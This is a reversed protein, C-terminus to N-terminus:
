SEDRFSYREPLQVVATRTILRTRKRGRRTLIYHQCSLTMMTHSREDNREEGSVVGLENGRTLPSAPLRGNGEADYPMMRDSRGPSARRNDPLSEHTSWTNAAVRAERLGRWGDPVTEEGFPAHAMIHGTPALCAEGRCAPMPRRMLRLHTKLPRYRAPNGLRCVSSNSCTLLSFRM